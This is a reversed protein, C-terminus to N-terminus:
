PKPDPEAIAQRLKELTFENSLCLGILRQRRLIVEHAAAPLKPSRSRFRKFAMATARVCSV